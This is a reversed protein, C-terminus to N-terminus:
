VLFSREFWTETPIQLSRAFRATLNEVKQIKATLDERTKESAQLAELGLPVKDYFAPNSEPEPEMNLKLSQRPRFTSVVTKNGIDAQFKVPFTRIQKLLHECDCVFVAGPDIDIYHLRCNKFADRQIWKMSAPIHLGCGVTGYFAEEGITELLPSKTLHAFFFRCDKFARHGITTLMPIEDPLGRLNKCRMFAEDDIIQLNRMQIPLEKLNDSNIFAQKTIERVPDTFRVFQDETHIFKQLIGGGTAFCLNGSEQVSVGDRVPQHENSDVSKLLVVRIDGGNALYTEVSDDVNFADVSATTVYLVLRVRLDQEKAEKELAVAGMISANITDPRYDARFIMKQLFEWM